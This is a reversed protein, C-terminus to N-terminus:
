GDCEGQAARSRARLDIITSILYHAEARTLAPSVMSREIVARLRSPLADVLEVLLARQPVTADERLMDSARNHEAYPARRAEDGGRPAAGRSIRASGKHYHRHRTRSM